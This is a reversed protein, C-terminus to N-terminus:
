HSLYISRVLAGVGPADGSDALLRLFVCGVVSDNYGDAILAAIVNSPKASSEAIPAAVPAPPPLAVEFVDGEEISGTYLSPISTGIADLAGKVSGVGSLDPWAASKPTIGRLYALATDDDASADFSLPLGVALSIFLCRKFTRLHM